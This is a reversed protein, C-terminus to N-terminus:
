QAGEAKAIAAQAKRYSEWKFIDGQYARLNLGDIQSVLVKCAELLDPAAKILRANAEKEDTTNPVDAIKLIGRGEGLKKGITAMDHWTSVYQEWPGPTHKSM